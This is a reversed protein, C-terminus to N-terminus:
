LNDPNTFILPKVLPCGYVVYAFNKCIKSVGRGGEYALKSFVSVYYCLCKALGGGGKGASM